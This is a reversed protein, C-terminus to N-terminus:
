LVKNHTVLRGAHVDDGAALETTIEPGPCLSLLRFATSREAHKRGKQPHLYNPGTSRLHPWTRM